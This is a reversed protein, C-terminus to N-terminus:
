KGAGLAVIQTQRSPPGDSMAVHIRDSAFLREMAEQLKKKGHAKGLPLDAFVKPAFNRSGPNHSVHRRQMTLDDLITLFIDDTGSEVFAQYGPELQAFSAEVFVGKYWRLSLKAGIRGYNAKMTELTRADVDDKTGTLYLRSRVSNNWATSGSSGTKSEMGALSPHALLLVTAGSNISLGRLIGIFQRAESRNNENGGFLDALTDLVILTPRLTAVLAALSAYLGTPIVVPNGARVTALLADMGALSSLTLGPVDNFGLNQAALISALRRHVEDMEDEATVFLAGGQKAPRGIWLTRAVTAVALQLALQSKGTGGDGNLLTVTGAPVMDEVHWSREPVPKGAFERADITPFIPLPITAANGPATMGAFSMSPGPYADFARALTWDRYEARSRVKDRQGLSSALWLREAQERCWGTRPALANCLALDDASADGSSATGDFLTRIAPPLSAIVDADSYRQPEDPMSHAVDPKDDGMEHWLQDLLPQREAIPKGEFVDGTMVFFRESSYVEIAGKRRGSKLKGKVIIHLGTRSVSRESYSDFTEFIRQQAAITGPDDSKDFDIGCYPDSATFVFGIGDYRPSASVAEDFSTWDTPNTVSANRGTTPDVPVKARKGDRDVFWWCVWQRFARMEGPIAAYREHPVPLGDLTALSVPVTM